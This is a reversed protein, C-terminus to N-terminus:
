CSSYYDINKYIIGVIKTEFSQLGHKLVFFAARLRGYSCYQAIPIPFKWPPIAEDSASRAIVLSLSVLTFSSIGSDQMGFRLRLNGRRPRKAVSTIQSKHNTTQAPSPSEESSAVLWQDSAVEESTM